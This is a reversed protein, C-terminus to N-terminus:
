TSLFIVIIPLSSLASPMVMFVSLLRTSKMLFLVSSKLSPCYMTWTTEGVLTIRNEPKSASRLLSVSATTSASIGSKENPRNVSFSSNMIPTCDLNRSSSASTLSLGIMKCNAPFTFAPVTASYPSVPTPCFAAMLFPTADKCSTSTGLGQRRIGYLVKVSTLCGILLKIKRTFSM